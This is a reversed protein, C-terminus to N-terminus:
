IGFHRDATIEKIRLLPELDHAFDLKAGQGSWDKGAEFGPSLEWSWGVIITVLLLNDGEILTYRICEIPPRRSISGWSSECRYKRDYNSRVTAWVASQSQM